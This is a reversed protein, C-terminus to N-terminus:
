SLFMRGPQNLALASNNGERDGLQYMVLDIAM